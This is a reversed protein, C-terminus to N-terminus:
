AIGIRRAAREAADPGGVQRMLLLGHMVAIATEAESRRVELPGELYTCAGDVWYEVSERVLTRYPERGNAALGNAEFFLAFATDAEPTTLIPWARRLMETHDAANESFAETLTAQLRLSLALIVETILDNMNPFYYVVTRDHIGLRKGVRGFSLKSLGEDYAVAM